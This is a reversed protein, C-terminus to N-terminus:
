ARSTALRTNRDPVDPGLIRPQTGGASAGRPRSARPRAVDDVARWEADPRWRQPDATLGLLYTVSCELAAALEPLRSGDLGAGRELSSLARNNTRVGLGDLREAVQQQTLGLARRRGRLRHSLLHRRSADPAGVRQAAFENM